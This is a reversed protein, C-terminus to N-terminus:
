ETEPSMQLGEEDAPRKMDTESEAAIRKFADDLHKLEIELQVEPVDEELEEILNCLKQVQM